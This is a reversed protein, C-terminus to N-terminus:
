LLLHKSELNKIVDAVLCVSTVRRHEQLLTLLM